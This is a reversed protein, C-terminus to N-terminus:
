HDPLMASLLYVANFFRRSWTYSSLTSCCISSVIGSAQKWLLAPNGFAWVCNSRLIFSRPRVVCTDSFVKFVRHNDLIDVDTRATIATHWSWDRTLRAAIASLITSFLLDYSISATVLLVAFADDPVSVSSALWRLLSVSSTTARRLLTWYCDLANAFCYDGLSCSCLSSCRSIWFKPPILLAVLLRASPM